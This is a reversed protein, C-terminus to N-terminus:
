EVTALVRIDTESHYERQTHAGLKALFEEIRDALRGAGEGDAHVILTPYESRSSDIVLSIKKFEDSQRQSAFEEDVRAALDEISDVSDSNM